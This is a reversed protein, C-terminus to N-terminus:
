GGLGFVFFPTSGTFARRKDNSSIVCQPDLLRRLRRQQSYVAGGLRSLESLLDKALAQVKEKVEASSSHKLIECYVGARHELDDIRDAGDIVRGAARVEHDGIPIHQALALYQFRPTHRFQEAEDALAHFTSVLKESSESSATTLLADYLSFLRAICHIKHESFERLKPLESILANHCEDHFSKPLRKKALTTYATVRNGNSLGSASAMEDMFDDRAKREEEVDKKTAEESSSWPDLRVMRGDEGRTEVPGVRAAGERAPFTSCYDPFKEHLLAYEASDNCNAFWTADDLSLGMNAVATKRAIQKEPSPHKPEQELGFRFKPSYASEVKWQSFMEGDIPDSKARAAESIVRGDLDAQVSHDQEIRRHELFMKECAEAGTKQGYSYLEYEPIKTERYVFDTDRVPSGKAWPAIIYRKTVGDVVTELVVYCHQPPEDPKHMQAIVTIRENRRLIGAVVHAIVDAHSSCTGSPSELFRAASEPHDKALRAYSEVAVYFIFNLGETEEYDRKGNGRMYTMKRHTEMAKSIRRVMQAEDAGVEEGRMILITFYAATQLDGISM